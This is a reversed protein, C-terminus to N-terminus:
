YVAFAPVAPGSDAMSQFSIRRRRIAVGLVLGFVALQLHLRVVSMLLLIWLRREAFSFCPVTLYHLIVPLFPIFTQKPPEGNRIQVVHTMHSRLTGLHLWYHLTVSLVPETAITGVLILQM